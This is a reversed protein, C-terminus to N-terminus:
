STKNGGFLVDFLRVVIWIPVDIIAGMILYKGAWAFWDLAWGWVNGISAVADDWVMMPDMGTIALLLGVCVSAIAIKLIVAPPSGGFINNM